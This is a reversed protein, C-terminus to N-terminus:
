IFEFVGTMNIINYIKDNFNKIPEQVKEPFFTHLAFQQSQDGVQSPNMKNVMFYRLYLWSCYFASLLRMDWQLELLFQVLYTLGIYVQPLLKYPILLNDSIFPIKTDLNREPYTLRLGM